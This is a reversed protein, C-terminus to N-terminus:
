PGSGYTDSFSPTSTATSRPAFEDTHKQEECWIGGSDNNDEAYICRRGNVEIEKVYPGKYGHGWDTITRINTAPFHPEAPEAKAHQPSTLVIVILCVCAACAGILLLLPWGESLPSHYWHRLRRLPRPRRM